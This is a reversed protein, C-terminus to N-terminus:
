GRYKQALWAKHDEVDVGKMSGRWRALQPTESGESAAMTLAALYAEVLQSVSTGSAAAYKKAAAVVAPDVSLTLKAAM